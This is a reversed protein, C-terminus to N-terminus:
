VHYITLTKIWLKIYMCVTRTHITYRINIVYQFLTVTQIWVKIDQFKIYQWYKITPTKYNKLHKKRRLILYLLAIIFGYDETLSRWVDIVYHLAIFKRFLMHLFNKLSILFNWEQCKPCGFFWTYNSDNGRFFIGLGQTSCVFCCVCYFIINLAPDFHSWESCLKFRYTM